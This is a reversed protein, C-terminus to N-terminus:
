LNVDNDNQVTDNKISINIKEVIHKFLMEYLKKSISEISDKAQSVSKSYFEKNNNM